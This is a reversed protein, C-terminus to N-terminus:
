GCDIGTAGQRAGDVGQRAEVEGIALALPPHQRKGTRPMSRSTGNRRRAGSISHARRKDM